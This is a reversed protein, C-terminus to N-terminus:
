SSQTRDDQYEVRCERPGIVRIVCSSSGKEGSGEGLSSALVDLLGNSGAGVAVWGSVPDVGRVSVDRRCWSPPGSKPPSVRELEPRRGGAYREQSRADAAPDAELEPDCTDSGCDDPYPTPKPAM